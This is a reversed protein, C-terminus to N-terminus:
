THRIAVTLHPLVPCYSLLQINPKCLGSISVERNGLPLLLFPPLHAYNVQVNHLFELYDFVIFFQVTRHGLWHVSRQSCSCMKSFVWPSTSEAHTPWFVGEILRNHSYMRIQLCWQSKPMIRRHRAHLNAHTKSQRIYPAWKITGKYRRKALRLKLVLDAILIQGGFQLSSMLLPAAIPTKDDPLTDQHKHGM